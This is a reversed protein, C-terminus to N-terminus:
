PENDEYNLYREYASNCSRVAWLFSSMLTCMWKPSFYSISSLHCFHCIKVQWTEARPNIKRCKIDTLTSIMGRELLSNGSVIPDTDVWTLQQIKCWEKTMISSIKWFQRLCQEQVTLGVEMRLPENDECNLYGELASHCSGVAWVFSSMLAGDMKSWFLLYNFFQLFPMNQSTVDWDRSRDTQKKVGNIENENIENM